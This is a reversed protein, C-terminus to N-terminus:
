PPGLIVVHGRASVVLQRQDSDTLRATLVDRGWWNLGADQARIVAGGLRDVSSRDLTTEGQVDASLLWLSGKLNSDPIQSQGATGIALTGSGGFGWSVRTASVSLVSAAYSCTVYSDHHLDVDGALPGNLIFVNGQEGADTRRSRVMLGAASLNAPELSEAGLVDDAADSSRITAWAVDNVDHAGLPGAHVLFVSDSIPESIALDAAGSGDFNGCAVTWGLSGAETSLVADADQPVSLQGTVPGLIVYVASRVPCSVILDDFGDGNYDLSSMAQGLTAPGTIALFAVSEFMHEGRLTGSVARVAGEGEVSTDTRLVLDKTGDGDLDAAIMGSGLHRFPESGRLVLRAPLEAWNGSVLPQELIRVEGAETRPYEGASSDSLGLEDLGDGDLDVALVSPISEGTEIRLVERPLAADVGAPEPTCSAGMAALVAGATVMMKAFTNM